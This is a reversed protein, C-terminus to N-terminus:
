WHTCAVARMGTGLARCLDCRQSRENKRQLVFVEHFIIKSKRWKWKVNARMQYFFFFKLTTLLSSFFWNATQYQMIYYILNCPNKFIWNLDLIRISILFFPCVPLSFSDWLTNRQRRLNSINCFYIEYSGYSRLLLKINNAIILGFYLYLFVIM